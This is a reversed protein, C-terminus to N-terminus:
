FIDRAKLLIISRRITRTTVRWFHLNAENRPANQSVIYLPVGSSSRTCQAAPSPVPVPSVHIMRKRTWFTSFDERFPFSNLALRVQLLM